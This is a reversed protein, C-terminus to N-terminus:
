ASLNALTPLARVAAWFASKVASRLLQDSLQRGGPRIHVGLRDGHRRDDVGVKQEPPPWLRFRAANIRSRASPNVARSAFLMMMFLLTIAQADQHAEEGNRAAPPRREPPSM